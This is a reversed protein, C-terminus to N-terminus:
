HRVVRYFRAGGDAALVHTLNTGTAVLNTVEVGWMGFASAGEIDYTRGPASEWTLSIVGNSATLSLLQFPAEQPISFV